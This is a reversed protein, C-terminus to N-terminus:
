EDDSEEEETKTKLMPGVEKSGRTVTPRTQGSFLVELIDVSEGEVGRKVKVPEETGRLIPKPSGKIMVKMKGEPTRVTTGVEYWKGTKASLIEDGAVVAGWKRDQVEKSPPGGITALKADLADVAQELDALAKPDRTHALGVVRRAASIVAAAEPMM